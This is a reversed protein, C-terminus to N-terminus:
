CGGGLQNINSSVMPQAGVAQRATWTPPDPNQFAMELHGSCAGLDVVQGRNKAGTPNTQPRETDQTQAHWIHLGTITNTGEMELGHSKQGRLPPRPPGGFPHHQNMGHHTSQSHNQSEAGEVWNISTPHCWQNPELQGQQHGLPHTQTRSPWKWTGVAPVM